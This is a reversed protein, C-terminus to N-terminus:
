REEAATVRNPQLIQQRRILKVLDLAKLFLVMRIILSSVRQRWM